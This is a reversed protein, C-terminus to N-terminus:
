KFDKVFKEYAEPNMQDYEVMASYEKSQKKPGQCSFDTIGFKAKYADSARIKRDREANYAAVEEATAVRVKTMDHKHNGTWYEGDEFVAVSIHGCNNKIYALAM